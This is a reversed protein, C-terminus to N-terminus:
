IKKIESIKLELNKRKLPILFNYKKLSTKGSISDFSRKIFTDLNNWITIENKITEKVISDSTYYTINKVESKKNFIIEVQLFDSKKSLNEQISVLNSNVFNYINSIRKQLVKMGEISSPVRIQKINKDKDVIFHLPTTGYLENQFNTYFEKYFLDSMLINYGELNNKKITAKWNNKFTFKPTSLHIFVLDKNKKKIIPFYEFEKTSYACYTNYLNIYLIKNEFEPLNILENLSSIKNYDKLIILKETGEFSYDNSVKIGIGLILFIIIFKIIKKIM